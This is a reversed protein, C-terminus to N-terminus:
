AGTRVKTGRLTGQCSLPCDGGGVTSDYRFYVTAQSPEERGLVDLHVKGSCAGQSADVDAEFLYRGPIPRTSREYTWESDVSVSGTSLLCVSDGGSDERQGEVRLTFKTGIVIGLRDWNCPSTPAEGLSDIRVVWEEGMKMSWCEGQCGLVCSGVLMCLAAIAQKLTM